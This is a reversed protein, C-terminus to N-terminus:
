WQSAMKCQMHRALSSCTTDRGDADADMWGDDMVVVVSVGWESCSALSEREGFSGLLEGTCGQAGM